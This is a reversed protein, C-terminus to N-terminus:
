EPALAMVDGLATVRADAGDPLGRGSGRTMVRIEADPLSKRILRAHRAGMSGGGM